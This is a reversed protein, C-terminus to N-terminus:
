GYTPFESGFLKRWLTIAQQHDDRGDYTCYWASRAVSLASTVNTAVALRDAYSLYADAYGTDHWLANALLTEANSFFVVLDWTIDVLEGSSEFTKLALVEIHYSQLYDGNRRSWHKIFKILQRFNEGGSSAVTEINRSHTKPRSKIWEGTNANPVNFHTVEGEANTTRSVPVVDVNPWTKYRLTVAQGNRRVSPRYDKLHDRIDALVDAPSKDKIHKGYHLVVMIDLDAHESLATFRPISGTSFSDLVEFSNQLLSVLADRRKNATIRHDGPLNIAEYFLTFSYPVTYAM